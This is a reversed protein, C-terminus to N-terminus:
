RLAARRPDEAAPRRDRSTPPPKVPMREVTGARTRAPLEIVTWGTESGVVIPTHEGHQVLRRAVVGLYLTDLRRALYLGAAALAIAVALLENRHFEVSTFLVLQM